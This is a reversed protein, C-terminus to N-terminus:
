ELISVISICLQNTEEELTLTGTLQMQQSTLREMLSGNQCKLIQITWSQKLISPGNSTNLKTAGSPKPTMSPVKIHTMTSKVTSDMTEKCTIGMLAKIDLTIIQIKMM